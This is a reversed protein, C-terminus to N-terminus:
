YYHRPESSLIFSWLSIHITASHCQLRLWQVVPTLYVGCNYHMCFSCWCHYHMEPSLLSVVCYCDWCDTMYEVSLEIVFVIIVISISCFDPESEKCLFSFFNLSIQRVFSLTEMGMVLNIYQNWKQNQNNPNRDMGVGITLATIIATNTNFAGSCLDFPINRKTINLSIM